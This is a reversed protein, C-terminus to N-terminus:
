NINLSLNYEITKFQKLKIILINLDIWFKYLDKFTKLDNLIIKMVDFHLNILMYKRKMVDFITKILYIYYILYM